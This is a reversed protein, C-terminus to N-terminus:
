KLAYEAEEANGLYRLLLRPHSSFNFLPVFFNDFIAHEKKLNRHTIDPINEQSV